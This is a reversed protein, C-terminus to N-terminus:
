FPHSDILTATPDTATQPSQGIGCRTALMEAAGVHGGGYQTTVESVFHSSPGVDQRGDAPTYQNSQTM